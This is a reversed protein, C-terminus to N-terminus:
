RAGKPLKSVDTESHFCAIPPDSHMLGTLRYNARHFEMVKEEIAQALEAGSKGKAEELSRCVITKMAMGTRRMGRHQRAPPAEAAPASGSGEEQAGASAALAAALCTAALANKSMIAEM